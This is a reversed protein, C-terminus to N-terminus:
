SSAPSPSAADRLRHIISKGGHVLAIGIVSRQTEDGARVGSDAELGSTPESSPVGPDNEGAAVSGLPFRRPIGYSALRAVGSM